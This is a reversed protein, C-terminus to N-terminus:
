AAGDGPALALLHEYTEKAAGPNKLAGRRLEAQKRLVEIPKGVREAQWTFLQDLEAHKQERALLSELKDSDISLPDVEFAAFFAAAAKNSQNQKECAEGLNRALLAKQPSPPLTKVVDELTAIFVGAEEAGGALKQFADLLETDNPAARFAAALREVAAVPKKLEGAELAVLRLLAQRKLAPDEGDKGAAGGTM